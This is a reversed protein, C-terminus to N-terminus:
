GLQFVKTTIGGAVSDTFGTKLIPVDGVFSVSLRRKDSLELKESRSLAGYNFQKLTQEVASIKERIYLPAFEDTNNLERYKEIGATKTTIDIKTRLSDTLQRGYLTDDGDGVSELELSYTLIDPKDVLQVALSPHAISLIHGKNVKTKDIIDSSPNNILAGAVMQDMEDKELNLMLKVNASSKKEGNSYTEMYKFSFGAYGNGNPSWGFNIVENGKFGRGDLTPQQPATHVTASIMGDFIYVQIFDKLQNYGIDVAEVELTVRTFNKLTKGLMLSIPDDEFIMVASKRLALYQLNTNVTDKKKLAVGDINAFSRQGM